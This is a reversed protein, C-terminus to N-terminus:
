NGSAVPVIENLDPAKDGDKDTWEYIYWAKDFTSLAPLMGNEFFYGAALTGSAWFGQVNLIISGSTPDRLFQIVFFDHDDNSEDKNREAVISDDAAKRFSLTSEGDYFSYIPSIRQSDLYVLMRAYFSGGAGILLEHAGSIPRGSAPNVADPVTQSVERVVPAPNCKAAMAAALARGTAENADAGDLIVAVQPVSCINAITTDHCSVCSGTGADGVSCTSPGCFQGTACATGCVGCHDSDTNADICRESCCTHGASCGDHTGEQAAACAPACRNDGCVNGAECEEDGICSQCNKADACVGSACSTGDAKCGPVCTNTSGCVTGSPCNDLSPLCDVCTGDKFCFGSKCQPCQPQDPAGGSGAESTDGAEGGGGASSAGGHAAGAKGSGGAHAPAGGRGATHAGGAGTAASGGAGGASTDDSGDSPKVVTCAAIAFVAFLVSAILGPMRKNM